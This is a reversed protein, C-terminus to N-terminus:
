NCGNGTAGQTCVKTTDDCVPNMATTNYKTVPCTWQVMDCFGTGNQCTGRVVQTQTIHTYNGGSCFGSSPYCTFAGCVTQYQVCAKDADAYAKMGIGLCGVGIFALALVRRM